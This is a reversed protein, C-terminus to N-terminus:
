AAQAGAADVRLNRLMRAGFKLGNTDWPTFRPILLPDTRASASGWATSVAAVFGLRRVQERNAPTFDDGPKGNPYAFTTVPAQLLQELCRKSGGIEEVARAADLRALIPHSVTHAGVQMGGRHLARVEDSTMMLGRPPEVGARRTVEAAGALREDPPLSKLGGIVADIAARRASLTDLPYRGGRPVAGDQLDLVSARTRRVAEIVRDNWMCGGDLFGTAVFFTASLGHHRLIPMAVQANDAYGDDFTIALARAPLSRRQLAAVAADLPMVNFWAALWRCVTDFRAAHMEEAFLPDPEPLVRHFILVSLRASAGAPSALAFLTRLLM